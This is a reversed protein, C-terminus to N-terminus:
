RMLKTTPNSLSWNYWFTDLGILKEVDGGRFTGQQTDFVAGSELETWGNGDLVFGARSVFATTSEFMPARKPRFFFVFEGGPADGAHGGEIREHAIAVGHGKRKFAFIPTKTGLRSDRAAQGRFGKPDEWYGAYSDEAHERGGVSLVRTEPHKRVWDMWRTKKTGPLEVLSRGRLQGATSKGEMISWYSNTERDQM